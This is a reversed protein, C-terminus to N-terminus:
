LGSDAATRPTQGDTSLHPSLAADQWKEECDGHTLGACKSMVAFVGWEDFELSRLGTLLIPSLFPPLVSSLFFLLIKYERMLLFRGSLKESLSHSPLCSSQDSGGLFDGRWFREPWRPQQTWSSGAHCGCPLETRCCAYFYWTGLFSRMHAANNFSQPFESSHDAILHPSM